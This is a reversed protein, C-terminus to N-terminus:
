RQQVGKRRAPKARKASHGAAKRKHDEVTAEERFVDNRSVRMEDKERDRGRDDDCQGFLHPTAFCGPTQAASSLPVISLVEGERLGSERIKWTLTLAIKEQCIGDNPKVEAELEIDVPESPKLRISKGRQNIFITGRKLADVLCELHEIATSFGTKSRIQMHQSAM